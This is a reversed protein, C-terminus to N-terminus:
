MKFVREGANINSVRSHLPCKIYIGGIRYFLYVRLREEKARQM